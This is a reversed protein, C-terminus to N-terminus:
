STRGETSAAAGGSSSRDAPLASQELGSRTLGPSAARPPTVVGVHDSNPDPRGWHSMWLLNAASAATPKTLARISALRGSRTLATARGHPCGDPRDGVTITTPLISATVSGRFSSAESAVMAATALRM